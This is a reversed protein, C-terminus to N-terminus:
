RCRRVAEGIANSAKMMAQVNPKQILNRTRADVGVQSLLYFRAFQQEEGSLGAMTKDYGCECFAIRKVPTMSRYEARGNCAETFEARLPDDSVPETRCAGLASAVLAIM